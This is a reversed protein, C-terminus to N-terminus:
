EHAVREFSTAFVYPNGWVYHPLGKHERTETGEAWPYSEYFVIKGKHYRPKPKSYCSDWVLIFNDRCVKMRVDLSPTRFDEAIGEARADYCSIEQVREVGVGTVKLWTRAAWKPMHISPRKRYTMRVITETRWDERHLFQGDEGEFPDPCTAVYKPGVVHSDTRGWWKGKETHGLDWWTERVYILDGPSGLPNLFAGLAAGDCQAWWRGSLDMKWNHADLWAGRRHADYLKTFPRRTQTKRGELIAKNMAPNFLAPIEKM